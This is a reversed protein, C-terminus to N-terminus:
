RELIRRAARRVAAQDEVLLITENGHLPGPDAAPRIPGREELAAEALPFYIRFTTGEGPESDVWISGGCQKVSGYVMSLGLGTGGEKTTFFPEFLRAQTEPDMGTGSDTVQLLVHPGARVSEYRSALDQGVEEESTRITLTGGEPMADRANLVLNMLAQELQGPDVRIPEIEPDLRMEVTITEGLVRDLMSATARVARNLDVVELRTPHKRGFALLQSTLLASQDAAELIEGVDDRHREELEPDALLLDAVSTIVTLYNNFDHAVGTALQGLARLNEAGRLRRHLEEERRRARQLVIGQALGTGLDRLVDIERADFADIEESYINLAGLCEGAALLPIAVSSRYSRALAEDRWPAYESEEAIERAVSPEGNRIATGTPGRGLEDDSWAVEVADLYGEDVGHSAMPRVTRARDRQAYGIWAFRYGGEEVAIRCVDDLLEEEGSSSFVAENAGSLVRLARNSRALQEEARVREGIDSSIGIIGTVAGGEDLIPSTTVLAPFTEGDKRRVEIEGSWSRGRRVREMIETAEDRTGDPVTLEVI